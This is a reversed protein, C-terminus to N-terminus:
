LRTPYRCTRWPVQPLGDLQEFPRHGQTLIGVDREKVAWQVHSQRQGVGQSASRRLSTAM